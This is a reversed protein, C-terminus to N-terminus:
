RWLTDVAAALVKGDGVAMVAMIPAEKDVMADNKGKVQLTRTMLPTALPKFDGVNNCGDLQRLAHLRDRNEAPTPLLQLVPHDYAPKPISVYFLGDFQDEKGIRASLDFPLIPALAS